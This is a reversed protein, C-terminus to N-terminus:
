PVDDMFDFMSRGWLLAVLVGLGLVIFAAVLVAAIPGLNPKSENKMADYNRM